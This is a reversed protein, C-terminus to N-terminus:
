WPGAHPIDGSSAAHFDDKRGPRASGPRALGRVRSIVSTALRKAAEPAMRSDVYDYTVLARGVVLAVRVDVFSQRARRNKATIRVFNTAFRGTAGQIALSGKALLHTQTQINRRREIKKARAMSSKSCRSEAHGAEAYARRAEAPSRFVWAHSDVSARGNNQILIASAFGTETASPFLKPCSMPRVSHWGGGLDATSPVVRAALAQDRPRVDVLRRGSSCGALLPVLFFGVLWKM